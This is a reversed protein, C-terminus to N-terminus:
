YRDRERKGGSSNVSNLSLAECGEHLVDFAGSAEPAIVASVRTHAELRSSATPVWEHAGNRCHVLICGPPLGLERVLKGEFPSGPEVEMEVVVSGETRPSHGGRLLDRELLREYIPLDGLQEAVAYASFCALILPLMQNYDGTMELILVLGTLPSRVVAAFYAAMGVVAFVEPQTIVGPLLLKGVQGVALGILAGFVLLPTFIGGPAGTAYGTTTLTFRLLFWAPILMLTIRGQLILATLEHGGGVALPAFWAILGGAAGVVAAALLIYRPSIKAFLDLLAILARNFAVGLLGTALGLVIFIPLTSLPLVPYSPVVFVPAQDTLVRAVINAVAAAVFAAGLVMPRFDRQVEELVFIVGALPANFAAALGAGGGAAILTFRERASVKLWRAVMDGIAGGMQVTPGERGLAMGSALAALGGAFKVPLIRRWHMERHRRLVAELHPIGSGSTEPAFRRMLFVALMAGVAGFLIPFIIGLSGLQHSLDILSNRLGDGFGLTLRFATAVLGALLGVLAARPFIRRRQERIHLYEYVESRAEERTAPTADDIPTPELASHENGATPDSSSQHPESM